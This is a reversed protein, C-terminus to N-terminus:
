LVVCGRLLPVYQLEQIDYKTSVLFLQEYKRASSPVNKLAGALTSRQCLQRVVSDRTIGIVHFM